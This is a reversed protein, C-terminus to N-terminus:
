LELKEKPVQSRLDRRPRLLEFSSFLCANAIGPAVEVGDVFQFKRPRWRTKSRDDGTSLNILRYRHTIASKIIEGLLMTMISYADWTVANGSHYLYLEDGFAFGIRTAVVTGSIVAEFIRLQGRRAMEHCYENFFSRARRHAFVDYSRVKTREKHLIYFDSLARAVDSTRTVIRLEFAHGDRQLEKLCSRLKKRVRSTLAAEFDKWTAPLDLVYDPVERTWAFRGRTGSSASEPQGDHRIGQWRIWNWGKETSSFYLSLADLVNTQDAPSCVMGRLETMNPDAGFFQIQRVRLPGVAPSNTRVLPVVAVLRADADRVTCLLFEDRAFLSRKRHHMWWLENWLPTTFPMRPFLSQDLAEWETRLSPFAEPGALPEVKLM